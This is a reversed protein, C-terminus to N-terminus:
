EQEILSFTVAVQCDHHRSTAKMKSWLSREEKIFSSVNMHCGLAFNGKGRESDVRTEHSDVRKQMAQEALTAFQTWTEPLHDTAPVLQLLHVQLCQCYHWVLRRGRQRTSSSHSPGHLPLHLWAQPNRAGLSNRWEQQYVPWHCKQLLAQVLDLYIKPDM